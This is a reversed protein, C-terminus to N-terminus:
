LVRVYLFCVCWNLLVDTRHRFTACTLLDFQQMHQLIHKIIIIMIVMMMIIKIILIVVVVLLLLILLLVKIQIAGYKQLWSFCLAKCGDDM